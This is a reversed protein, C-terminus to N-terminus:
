KFLGMLITGAEAFQPSMDILFCALAISAVAMMTYGLKLQNM